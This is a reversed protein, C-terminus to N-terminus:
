QYFEQLVCDGTATLLRDKESVVYHGGPLTWIRKTSEYEFFKVGGSFCELKSKSVHRNEMSFADEINDLRKSCSINLFILSGLIIIRM